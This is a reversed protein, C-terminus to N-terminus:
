LGMEHLTIIFVNFDEAATELKGVADFGIQIYVNM